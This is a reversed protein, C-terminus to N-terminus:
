DAIIGMIAWTLAEELKSKATAFRDPGKQRGAKALTTFLADLEGVQRKVEEVEALEEPSLSAPDFGGRSTMHRLGM